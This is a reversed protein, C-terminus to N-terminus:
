IVLLRLHGEEINLDATGDICDLTRSDQDVFM